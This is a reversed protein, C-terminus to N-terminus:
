KFKILIWSFNLICQNVIELNRTCSLLYINYIETNIIKIDSKMSWLISVSFEEEIFSAFM